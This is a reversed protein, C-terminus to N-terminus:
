GVSSHTWLALTTCNLRTLGRAFSAPPLQGPPYVEAAVVDGVPVYADLDGPFMSRWRLGDVYTNLCGQAGRLVPGTPGPVEVLLPTQRFLDSVTVAKTAAINQPTLFYAGRISSERQLFGNRALGASDHAQQDAVAAAETQTLLTVDIHNRARDSRKTSFKADTRTPAYGRARVVVEEPGGPVNTLTYNGNADTRTAEDAGPVYVRANPVPTGDSTAVRGTVTVTGSASPAVNYNPSVASHACASLALAVSLAGITNITKMTM